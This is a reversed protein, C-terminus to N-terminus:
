SGPFGKQFRRRGPFALSDGALGGACAVESFKQLGLKQLTRYHETARVIAGFALRRGVRLLGFAPSGLCMQSALLNEQPHAGM